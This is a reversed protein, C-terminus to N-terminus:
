NMFIRAHRARERAINAGKKISRTLCYRCRMQLHVNLSWNVKEFYGKKACPWEYIKNTQGKMQWGFAWLYSYPVFGRRLRKLLMLFRTRSLSEITIAKQHCTKACNEFFIGKNRLTSPLFSQLQLVPQMFRLSLM